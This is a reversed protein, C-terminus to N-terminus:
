DSSGKYANKNILKKKSVTQIILWHLDSHTVFTYVKLVRSVLTSFITIHLLIYISFMNPPYAIDQMEKSFRMSGCITM